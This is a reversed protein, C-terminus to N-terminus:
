RTGNDKEGKAITNILNTAIQSAQWLAWEKLRQGTLTIHENTIIKKQGTAINFLGASESVREKIDDPTNITMSPSKAVLTNCIINIFDESALFQNICSMIEPYDKFRIINTMASESLGTEKQFEKASPIQEDSLGLLYDSSVGLIKCIAVLGDLSPKRSGIEYLGYGKESTPIRVELDEDDKYIRLSEGFGFQTYNRDKRIEKLRSAFTEKFNM